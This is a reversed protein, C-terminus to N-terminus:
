STKLFARSSSETGRGWLLLVEGADHTVGRLAVHLLLLLLLSPALGGRRRRARAM